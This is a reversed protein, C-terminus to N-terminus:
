WTRALEFAIGALTIVEPLRAGTGKTHAELRSQLDTTFGVYHRAHKYAESFHLLYITGGM